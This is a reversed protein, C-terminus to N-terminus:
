EGEGTCNLRLGSMALVWQQVPPWPSQRHIGQARSTHSDSSCPSHTSSPIDVLSRGCYCTAHTDTDTHTDTHMRTRHYIPKRNRLTNMFDQLLVVLIKGVLWVRLKKNVVEVLLWPCHYLGDRSEVVRCEIAELDYLIPSATMERSGCQM